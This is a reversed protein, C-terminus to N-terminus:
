GRVELATTAQCSKCLMWGDAEDIILKMLVPIHGTSHSMVFPQQGSGHTAACARKFFALTFLFDHTNEKGPLGGQRM